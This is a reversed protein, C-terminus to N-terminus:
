PNVELWLSHLQQCRDSCKSTNLGDLKVQGEDRTAFLWYRWPKGCRSLVVYGSREGKTTDGGMHVSYRLKRAVHCQFHSRRKPKDNMTQDMKQVTTMTRAMVGFGRVPWETSKGLPVPKATRTFWQFLGDTRATRCRYSHGAGCFGKRLTQPPRYPCARYL